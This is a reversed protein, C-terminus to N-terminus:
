IILQCMIVLSMIQPYCFVQRKNSDFEFCEASIDTRLGSRSVTYDSGDVDVRMPGM